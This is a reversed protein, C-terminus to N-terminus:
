EYNFDKALEHTKELTKRRHESESDAKYFFLAEDVGFLIRNRAAQPMDIGRATAAIGRLRRVKDNRILAAMQKPSPPSGLRSM